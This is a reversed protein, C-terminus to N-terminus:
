APIGEMLRKLAVEDPVNFVCHEWHEQEQDFGSVGPRILNEVLQGFRLNPHKEWEQALLTLIHNRQRDRPNVESGGM